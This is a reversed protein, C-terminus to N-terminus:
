SENIFPCKTCLSMAKAMEYKTNRIRADKYLKEFIASDGQKATNKTSAAIIRKKPRSLREFIAVNPICKIADMTEIPKSEFHSLHVKKKESQLVANTQMKLYNNIPSVYEKIKVSNQNNLLLLQRNASRYKKSKQSHQLKSELICKIIYKSDIDRRKTLRHISRYANIQHLLKLKKKNLLNMCNVYLIFDLSGKKKRKRETYIQFLKSKPCKISVLNMLFDICQQKREIVEIETLCNLEDFGIVAVRSRPKSLSVHYIQHTQYISRFTAERNMIKSLNFQICFSLIPSIYIKLSLKQNKKRHKCCEDAVGDDDLGHYTSILYNREQEAPSLEYKSLLLLNCVIALDMSHTHLSM